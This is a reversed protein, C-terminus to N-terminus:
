KKILKNKVILVAGVGIALVAAGIVVGMPYGGMILGVTTMGGGTFPLLVSSSPSSM